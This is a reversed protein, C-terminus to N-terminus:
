KREEPLQINAPRYVLEPIVHGDAFPIVTGVEESLAVTVVGNLSAWAAAVHKTGVSGKLRMLDEGTGNLNFVEPTKLRRGTAIMEGDLDFCIAGDYGSPGSSGLRELHQYEFEKGYALFPLEGRIYEAYLREDMPATIAAILEPKGIVALVATYGHEALKNDFLADRARSLRRKANRYLDSTWLGTSEEGRRENLSLGKLVDVSRLTVAALRQLDEESYADYVPFRDLTAALEAVKDMPQYLYTQRM